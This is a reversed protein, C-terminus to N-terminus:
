SESQQTAATRMSFTRPSSPSSVRTGIFRELTAPMVGGETAFNKRLIEEVEATAKKNSDAADNLFKDFARRVHDVDISGSASQLAM